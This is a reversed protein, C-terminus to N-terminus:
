KPDAGMESLRSLPGLRAVCSTPCIDTHPVQRCCLAKCPTSSEAVARHGVALANPKGLGELTISLAVYFRVSSKGPYCFDANEKVSSHSIFLSLARLFTHKYGPFWGWSSNRLSKWLCYFNKIQIKTHCALYSGRRM